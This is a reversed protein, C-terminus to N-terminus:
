EKRFLYQYKRRQQLLITYVRRKVREDYVADAELLSRIEKEEFRFRITEGYLKEAIELQEEFSHSFTKAAVKEILVISDEGLPYDVTTDALLAAGHDFLPCYKYAGYGDWLVAINHTHRDENLFLADLTLLKGMYIGFKELGTVCIIQDVLFKLREEPERIKFISRYLSEQYKLRFLRELTLVQWRQDERFDRSVCGSFTHGAYEMNETEYLVYEKSCLTSYKLLNSVMYEALGEYGTYDAKYWVRDKCWKLQNGKSSQHGGERLDKELLEM